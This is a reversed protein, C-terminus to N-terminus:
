RRPDEVERTADGPVYRPTVAPINQERMWQNLAAVDKAVIQKWVALQTDARGRLVQLFEVSQKTPPMDANDVVLNLWAVKSNLKTPYNCMDQSSRADVEILEAEVPAMKKEIEDLRALATRAKADDGLNKRLMGFQARVSRMELVAAHTEGHLSIVQTMMDFQKQLDAM